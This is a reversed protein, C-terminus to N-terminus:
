NAFMLIAVIENEYATFSQCMSLFIVSAFFDSM